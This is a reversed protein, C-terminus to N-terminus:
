NCLVTCVRDQFDRGPQMRMVGQNIISFCLVHGNAATCYGTLSSIGSVSGTKAHVNDRTASGTMRKKLTGDVGAIPLAPYLHDYIDANLFAYRLLHVELEASVYNYLSLGSGDAIRYPNRGLGLKAILRKTINRADRAKAPRIGTSAAIQYFMSEAYFNDSEKLMPQLVEDITHTCAAVFFSKGSLRGETCTVNDLVVGENALMRYLTTTFTDKRGISLPILRPNDDDWCWGEGYEDAEKMSQDAIIRGRLTDVGMFHLHLALAKIDEEGLMPDFGGVCYLDGNLLGNRLTGQYYLSTRYKYNSSLRDLATISTVVKMTSAPRMMQRENYRYLASDATLDYVMLGLQSTQLLPDMLLTDLRAQLSEPWATVTTSDTAADSSADTHQANVLGTSCVIFLLIVSLKKM